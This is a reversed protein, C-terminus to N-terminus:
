VPELHDEKQRHKEGHPKRNREAIVPKERVQCKLRVPTDFEERQDEARRCKLVRNQEPRTLMPRMVLVDIMLVIGIVNSFPEELRMDAPQEELELRRRGKVVNDIQLFVPEHHPLVMVNVPNARGDREHQRCRNTIRPAAPRRRKPCKEDGAYGTYNGDLVAGEADVREAMVDAFLRIRGPATRAVRPQHGQHGEAFAVMVIVM